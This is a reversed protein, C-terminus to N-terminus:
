SKPKRRKSRRWATAVACLFVALVCWYWPLSESKPTTPKVATDESELKTENISAIVEPPPENAVAHVWVTRTILNKRRGNEDLYYAKILVEHDGPLFKFPKVMKKGQYFYEIFIDKDAGYVSVDCAAGAICNVPGAYLLPKDRGSDGKEVVLVPLTKEASEGYKDTIRATLNYAGMSEPKLTLVPLPKERDMTKQSHSVQKGSADKLWAEIEAIYDGDEDGSTGTTSGKFSVEFSTYSAISSGVKIKIAPASNKRVMLNITQERRREGNESVLTVTVAPNKGSYDEDVYGKTSLSHPNNFDIASPPDASWEVRYNKCGGKVRVAFDLEEGVATKRTDDGDYQDGNIEIGSRWEPVCSSLAVLGITAHFDGSATKLTYETSKKVSFELSSGDSARRGSQDEWFGSSGQLVIRSGEKAYFTQWSNTGDTTIGSTKEEDCGVCSVTPPSALAIPIFVVMMVIVIGKM